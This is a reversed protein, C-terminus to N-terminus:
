ESCTDINLEEMVVHKIYKYSRNGIIKQNAVFITPTYRIGARRAEKATQLINNEITENSLYEELSEPNDLVSDIVKKIRSSDSPSKMQGLEEMFYSYHGTLYAYHACKATYLSKPRTPHTLYRIVINMMGTNVFENKLKMYSQNFFNNCAQCDFRSYIYMTIPLNREGIVIDNEKIKNLTKIRKDILTEYILKNTNYAKNELDVTRFLVILLLVLIIQIEVVLTIKLWKQMMKIGKKDNPHHIIKKNFFFSNLPM